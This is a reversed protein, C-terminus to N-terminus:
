ISASCLAEAFFNGHEKGKYANKARLHAMRCILLAARPGSRDFGVAGVWATQSTMMQGTMFIASVAIPVDLGSM